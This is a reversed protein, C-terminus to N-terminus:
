APPRAGQAVGEGRERLRADGDVGGRRDATGQAVGEGDDDGTDFGPEARAEVPVGQREADRDGEGVERQGGERDLVADGCGAEADGLLAMREGEAGVGDGAGGEVRGRVTGVEQDVFGVAEVLAGRDGVVEAVGGGGVGSAGRAHAVDGAQDEGVQAAGGVGVGGGEDGFGGRM